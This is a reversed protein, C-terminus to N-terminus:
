SEMQHHLKKLRDFIAQYFYKCFEHADLADVAELMGVAAYVGESVLSHTLSHVEQTAAGGECCNLTVLWADRLGANALLDQVTLLVSSHPAIDRFTGLELRPEGYEASGHCFFHVIQPGFDDIQAFLDIRNELPIFVLKDDDQIENIKDFAREDGIVAKVHVKLGANRSRQVADYFAEWEPAADVGVASLVAMVKVPSQFQVPAKPVWRPSDAM